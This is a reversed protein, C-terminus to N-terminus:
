NRLVVLSKSLISISNKGLHSMVQRDITRARRAAMGAAVYLCTFNKRQKYCAALYQGEM